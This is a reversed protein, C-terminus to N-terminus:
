AFDVRKAIVLLRDKLRSSVTALGYASEVYRQAREARLRANDGDRYVLRMQNAAHGVDPDAWAGAAFPYEQQGVPRLHSRVPYGTEETLYDASGSWDTAIVPTGLLMSEVLPRGFGEARHLSIYAGAQKILGSLEADSVVGDVIVVRRDFKAIEIMAALDQPRREGNITKLVLGVPESGLPFASRFAAITGAPNKREIRSFFDFVGLFTFAGQFIGDIDSMTVPLATRVHLPMPIVPKSSETLYVQELFRSSAWVEDVADYAHRWEAPFTTTEWPWYGVIHQRSRDLVIGTHALARMMEFAPLCFVVISGTPRSAEFAGYRGHAEFPSLEPPSVDVLEAGIGICCLCDFLCRADEGLGLVSRHFGVISVSPLDIGEQAGRVLARLCSLYAAPAPSQHGTATIAEEPWGLPLADGRGMRRLESAKLFSGLRFRAVADYYYWSQLDADTSNVGNWEALLRMLGHCGADDFQTLVDVLAATIVAPGRYIHRGYVVFWSAFIRLDDSDNVVNTLASRHVLYFSRLLPNQEIFSRVIETAINM